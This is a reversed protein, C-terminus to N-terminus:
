CASPLASLSKSFLRFSPNVFCIAESLLQGERSVSVDIAFHINVCRAVSAINVNRRIFLSQDKVILYRISVIELFT